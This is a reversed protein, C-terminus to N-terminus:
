CGGFFASLYDFFDQSNVSADLNFDARPDETFFATLFDFCLPQATDNFFSTCDVGSGDIARGSGNFDRRDPQPSRGAVANGIKDPTAIVLIPGEMAFIASYFFDPCRRLLAPPIFDSLAINPGRRHPTAGAASLFPRSFGFGPPNM